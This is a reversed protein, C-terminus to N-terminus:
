ASKADANQGNTTGDTNASINLTVSDGLPLANLDRWSVGANPFDRNIGEAAAIALRIRNANDEVVERATDDEDEGREAGIQRLSNMGTRARLLDAAADQLPNVYPYKPFHWKHSYIARGIAAARRRIGRDTAIARNVRWRYVPSHFRGRMTRQNSRFGMRAQDVAGRWGSFNTESADLLLMVLPIGLNIGILTLIMKVHPFYEPNPVAPTFGTIKEGIRPQIHVGPQMRTVYRRNGAADVEDSLGGINLRGPPTPNESNMFESIFAVCSVIQQQVLRAFQVDEFMGLELTIPALATIGRTQTIRKPSKIHFVQRDGNEDRTPIRRMDAFAVQANPAVDEQTLFYALHRRFEDLEVGHVVNRRTRKPSRLRHAEVLELSDASTPLALVDGDVLHQRFLMSEMDAFVLEGALDCREPDDAWDWFMARLDANLGPDGTMPELTFGDQITNSVAREILPGVVVDNRQMDRATEVMRFYRSEDRVHYDAGAGMSPVVRDRGFRSRKGADYDGRVQDAWSVRADRM